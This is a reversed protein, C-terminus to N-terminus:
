AAKQEPWLKDIPLGKMFHRYLPWNGIIRYSEWHGLVDRPDVADFGWEYADLARRRTADDDLFLDHWRRPTKPGIGAYGICSGIQLAAWSGLDRLVRDHKVCINLIEPPAEAVNAAALAQMAASQLEAGDLILIREVKGPEVMGIADLAVRSGLSHCVISLQGKTGAIKDALDHAARPALMMYAYRYRDLYGNAITRLIGGITPVSSYWAFGDVPQQLMDSWDHYLKWPDNTESSPDFNFGHVGIIAM